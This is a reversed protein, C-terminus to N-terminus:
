LTVDASIYKITGLPHGADDLQATFPFDGSVIDNGDVTPTGDDLFIMPVQIEFTKVTSGLAAGQFSWILSTNADSAFKDNFVTGDLHDATITGTVQLDDNTIPESKKGGNGQYFRDTNQPRTFKISVNKIGDVQAESGFAGIKTVIENWSIIQATTSYVLAAITITEDLERSDIEWAVMLDGNVDCSFEASLIKCGKYTKPKVTGDTQPVGVQITLMKGLSDVVFPHTQTYAPGAGVIVPVVTGGMLSQFWLGMGADVVEMNITGAAAQSTVKRNRGLKAARGAAIGGGQVTNKVKKLSESKFEFAKNVTVPTGYTIEPAIGLQAGLGSGVGM